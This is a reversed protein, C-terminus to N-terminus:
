ASRAGIQCVDHKMFHEPQQIVEALGNWGRQCRFDWPNNDEVFITWPWESTGLWRHTAALLSKVSSGGAKKEHLYATESILELKQPAILLCKSKGQHTDRKELLIQEPAGM